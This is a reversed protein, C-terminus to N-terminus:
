TLASRRGAPPFNRPARSLGRVLCATITKTFSVLRLLPNSVESESASM